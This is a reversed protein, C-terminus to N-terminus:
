VTSLYFKSPPSLWFNMSSMWIRERGPVKRLVPVFSASLLSLPGVWEARDLRGVIRTKGRKFHSYAVTDLYRSM